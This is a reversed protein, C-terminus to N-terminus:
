YNVLVALLVKTIYKILIIDNDIIRILISVIIYFSM